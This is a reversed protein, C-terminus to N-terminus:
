RRVMLNKLAKGFRDMSLNITLLNSVIEGIAFIAQSFLFIKLITLTNPSYRAMIIQWKNM